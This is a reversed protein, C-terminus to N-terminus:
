LLRLPINLKIQSSAYVVSTGFFSAWAMHSKVVGVQGCVKTTGFYADIVSYM